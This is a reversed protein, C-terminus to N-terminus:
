ANNLLTSPSKAYTSFAPRLIGRLFHEALVKHQRAPSIGSALQDHMVLNVQALYWRSLVPADLPRYTGEAQGRQLNRELFPVLRTAQYQQWLEYLAPAAHRLEPMFGPPLALHQEKFWRLLLHLEEAATPARQFQQHEVWAQQQYRQFVRALLADKTPFHQYITKKSIHLTAALDAVKLHWAGVALLRASTQEVIRAAVDSM